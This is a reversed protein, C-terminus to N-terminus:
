GSDVDFWAPYKWYKIDPCFPMTRIQPFELEPDPLRALRERLELSDAIAMWEIAVEDGLAVQKEMAALDRGIWGQLGAAASDIAIRGVKFYPRPDEFVDGSLMAWGSFAEDQGNLAARKLWRVKEQTNEKDVFMLAYFWMALANGQDAAQEM